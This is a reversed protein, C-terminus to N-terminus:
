SNAILKRMLRLSIFPVFFLCFALTRLLMMGQLNLRRIDDQPLNFIESHNQFWFDGAVLYIVLWLLVLALSVLFCRLLFASIITLKKELNEM